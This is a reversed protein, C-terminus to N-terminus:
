PWLLVVTGRPGLAVSLGGDTASVSATAGYVVTPPEPRGTALRVTKATAEGNTVVAVLQRGSELVRLVAGPQRAAFTVAQARLTDRAPGLLSAVLQSLPEGDGLWAGLGVLSPIWVAEGKGLRHRVATVRDGDRAIPTATIPEVDSEWLHFPLVLPPQDLRLSGKEGLLRVEKMRAGLVTELPSRGLPWARAEPDFLGTLGTVLLTNGDRVFAELGAAQEASVATAHPLIALRPAGSALPTHWGQDHVFRVEAPV